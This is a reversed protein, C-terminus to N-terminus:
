KNFLQFFPTFGLRKYVFYAVLVSQASFTSLSAILAGVVGFFYALLFTTTCAFIGIVLLINKLDKEYGTMTLLSATPGTIINIFQCLALIRLFNAADGYSSGFLSLPISPFILIFILMPTAMIMSIRIGKLSALRLSNYDDGVQAKAFLPSVVFNVAVAVIGILMALRQAANFLAFELDGLYTAVAYQSSWIITSNMLVILAFSSLRKLLANDISHELYLKASSQSYWSYAGLLTVVCISIVYASLM